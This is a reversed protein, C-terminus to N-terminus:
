KSGKDKIDTPCPTVVFLDDSKSGKDAGSAGSKAAFRDFFADSQECAPNRGFQFNPSSPNGSSRGNRADTWSAAAENGVIDVNEYDGMFIGARFAYDLNYPSDSVTYNKFPFVTQNAGAAAGRPPDQCNAGTGDQCDQTATQIGSFGATPAVCERSDATSVRCVGGWFWGLYNGPRSRSAPWESGTSDTDLRRDHFVVNVDGDDSIDVWPFWQDNGFNANAQCQANVGALTPLFGDVRGCDRDPPAVSRDDNVRTPGVWNTGGDISKFLFIDTNTSAATGFRNDSIVVYLDNAFAGGRKDAVINGYSNLRFCSNTLVQRNNQQGRPACDPRTTGSRPYNLDFVSTILFPGQFTQGGDMSRVMLYQDEDPTNGNLFAIYLAGTTPNVTPVSAQNFNCDGGFFACFSASGSIRREPSWSRGQDDSYSFYIPSGTNDFKTWSVYIRDVGITAPDCPRPNHTESGFCTPSVGAPRPGTTMWEKDNFPANGNLVPDPDDAYTVTGDGPQRPDGLGGCAAVDDAPNAGRIPVCARSWTFGGNTSRQVFVGNTDNYRNFAIQAYYAIGARDFATVPDGGSPLYGNANGITAPTSPFPIIGDYWSSGNDTSAYFGSSGTGLRYDNAGAVMSRSTTPNISISTENQPFCSYDQNLRRDNGGNSKKEVQDIARRDLPKPDRDIKGAQPCETLTMGLTMDRFEIAGSPALTAGSRGAVFSAPNGSAMTTFAALVTVAASLVLLGTRPKM